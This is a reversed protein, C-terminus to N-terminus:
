KSLKVLKGELVPKRQQGHTYKLVDKNRLPLILPKIENKLRLTDRLQLWFIFFYFFIVAFCCVKRCSTQINKWDSVKNGLGLACDNYTLRSNTVLSTTPWQAQRAHMMLLYLQGANPLQM